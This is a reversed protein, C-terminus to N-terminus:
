HHISINSVSRRMLIFYLIVGSILGSGALILLLPFRSASVTPGNTRLAVNTETSSPAAPASPEVGFVPIPLNANGPAIEAHYSYAGSDRTLWVSLTDRTFHLTEEAREAGPLHFLIDISRWARYAQLFPLIRPMSDQFLPSRLIAFEASTTVPFRRLNDPNLSYDRIEVRGAVEGGAFRVFDRIEQQVRKHGVKQNYTLAIRASEASQPMVLLAIKAPAKITSAPNANRVSSSSPALLSTDEASRQALLCLSNTGLSYAIMLQFVGRLIYRRRDESLSRLLAEFTFCCRVRM